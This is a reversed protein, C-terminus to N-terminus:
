PTANPSQQSQFQSGKTKILTETKHEANRHKHQTLTDTTRGAIAM